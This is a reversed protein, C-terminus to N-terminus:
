NAQTRGQRRLRELAAAAEQTLPAEAAGKALEALVERAAPTGIGELLEVARMQRLSDPKLTAPDFEDLFHLARRRVEASETTALRKRVGPVALEGFEALRRSAKQRTVFDKSDLDAFMRDLQDETPAPLAPKLERRVLAAARDPAAALDAMAAFAAGADDGALKAWLGDADAATLPEKRPKAAGALTIDWMLAFADDSGSLLRRGDSAMALSRVCGAHGHLTRRQKGTAVEFAVIYSTDNSVYLTRGDPSVVIATVYYSWAGAFSQLWRPTLPDLLAVGGTSPQAPRDGQAPITGTGPAVMVRGDATFTAMTAPQFHWALQTWEALRRIRQGTGLDWLDAVGGAPSPPNESRWGTREALTVLWRGDPSVAFRQCEYEKPQKDPKPLDFSRRVKMQPWDLVTVRPGSATVLRRGDPTFALAGFRLGDPLDAPTTERGTALDWTRLCGRVGYYPHSASVERGGPVVSALVTRSDPSVALENVLGAVVRLERGTATDWWRITRDWGATVATKGDPSLAVRLVGAVHGPQRCLDKGTAADLLRIVGGRGASAVTRGDRSWALAEVQTYQLELTRLHRGSAVDWLKVLGDRGGTALTKGDPAFAVAVTGGYQWSAKAVHDTALKREKGTALDWLSTGGGELGIAVTTNSVAMPGPGNETPRPAKFRVTEKGSALDWVLVLHGDKVHKLAVLRKGDPTFFLRKCNGPLRALEKPAPLASVVAGTMLPRLLIARDTDGPSKAGVVMPDFIGFDVALVSGRGVALTKGDPSVAYCWDSEKDVTPQKRMVAAAISTGWDPLIKPVAKEDTFEWVSGDSGRLRAVDRTDAGQLMVIGRGDALWVLSAQLSQAQAPLGVRRVADGTGTDWLSLHGGGYAAVKTGDPSLALQSVSRGHRLRTSGLRQVVGAPLPDAPADAKDPKAAPAKDAKAEQPPPAEPAPPDAFARRIQIGVAAALLGVALLLATAAKVKSAFMSKTVGNALAVVRASVGAATGVRAGLAAGVTTTVLASPLASATDAAAAATCLAAALTLGRRALREQMRRRAEALRSSVTGEKWGLQAAAEAKSRCELCCLVFPLQYKEPLREVEQALVAQLERWAAELDPQSHGVNTARRERAQRRAVARRADAAVRRAVGYVWSALASRRRISAAKRALLLFTAQFADEADQHHRLVRRCVGMVLPGHRRVLAAFAAEDGSARFRALLDSDPAAPLDGAALKRVQRVVASLSTPPM